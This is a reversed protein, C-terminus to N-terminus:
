VSSERAKRPARQNNCVLYLSGARRSIEAQMRHTAALPSDGTKPLRLAPLRLAMHLKDHPTADACVAGIERGFTAFGVSEFFRVAYRADANVTLNVQQIGRVSEALLLAEQL